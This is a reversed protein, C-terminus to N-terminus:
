IYLPIINGSGEPITVLSSYELVDWQEEGKSYLELIYEGAAIDLEIDYLQSPLTVWYRIDAQESEMIAKSSLVYQGMAITAAFGNEQDNLSKYTGYAAMLAALYKVGIRVGLKHYSKEVKAKNMELSILDVPAFPITFKEILIEEKKKLVLKLQSNIKRYEYTPLYFEIGVEGALQDLPSNAIHVYTNGTSHVYGLGLTGTAFYTLLPVGIANLADKTPGDDMSKIASNLTYSFPTSKLSKKVKYELLISNKSSSAKVKKVDFGYAKSYAKLRWPQYKKTLNGITIGVDEMAIDYPYDQLLNDKKAKQLKRYADKLLNLAILSEKKTQFGLHIKAAFRNMVIESLLPKKINLTRKTDKNFSDWALMMARARSRYQKAEGSTLSVQIMENKENLRNYVRKQAIMIFNMAQYLYIFSQEYLDPIYKGNRDSSISVLVEKTISKTYSKAILDIVEEYKVSSLFYKGENYLIKGEELLKLILNSKDTYLKSNRVHRLSESYDKVSFNEKLKEQDRKTLSSCSVLFILILSLLYNIKVM